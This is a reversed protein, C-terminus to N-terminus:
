FKVTFRAGYTRPPRLTAATLPFGALPNPFSGQIVTVNSLNNVYGTVIWHDSPAHLGLTADSLWYPKQEELAAFDQGTLTASQYHTRIDGVLSYNGLPVTQQLGFNFSRKPAQPPVKGSCNLQYDGGAVVSYPCGTVPPAGFNPVDYAYDGYEADLFEVDAMFLTTPTILYQGELEFGKMTAKGVNNTALVITGASDQGVYSVQQDKYLWYFAEANLQLKNDLFRNKSGISYAM